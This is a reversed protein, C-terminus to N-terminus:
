DQVLKVRNVKLLDDVTVVKYNGVEVRTVKFSITVRFLMGVFAM